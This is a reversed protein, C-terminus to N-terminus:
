AHVCGCSPPNGWRSVNVHCFGVGTSLTVRGPLGPLGGGFGGIMYIHDLHFLLNYPSTPLGVWRPGGVEM